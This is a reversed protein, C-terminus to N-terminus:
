ERWYIKIVAKCASCEYARVAKGVRYRLSKIMKMKKECMPCMKVIRM